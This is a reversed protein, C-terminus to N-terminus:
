VGYRALEIGWDDWVIVDFQGADKVSMGRWLNVQTWRPYAYMAIAKAQRRSVTGHRVTFGYFPNLPDYTTVKIIKPFRHKVQSGVANYNQIFSASPSPLRTHKSASSRPASRCDAGTGSILVSSVLLFCVAKPM